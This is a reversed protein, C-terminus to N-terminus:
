RIRQSVRLGMVLLTTVRRLDSLPVGANFLLKLWLFLTVHCLTMFCLLGCRSLLFAVTFYIM